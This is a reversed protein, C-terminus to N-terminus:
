DRSGIKSGTRLKITVIDGKSVNLRRGANGCNIAIELFGFSGIVALPDGPAVDAYRHSLNRIITKDVKIELKKEPVNQIFANLHNEDINSICNGFRDISIITGILEDKDALYPKSISLRILDQPNLPTGLQDIPVGKSLHSAVPAFIDRGHFTHSVANLFFHPNEVRVAADIDKEDILLTLVGNDPALFIHGASELAIIARDGGVGPDVVVTHITGEPFYRYFSKILYAAQILDQPDIVHCVDIIVASPNISLIVGKMVGVYADETGFDTLLTIISM